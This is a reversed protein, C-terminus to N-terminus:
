LILCSDAISCHPCSPDNNGKVEDSSYLHNNECKYWNSSLSKFTIKKEYNEGSVPVVFLRDMNLDLSFYSKILYDVTIINHSDYYKIYKLSNDGLKLLSYYLLNDIKRKLDNFFYKNFQVDTIAFNKKVENFNSM